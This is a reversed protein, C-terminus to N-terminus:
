YNFQVAYDSLIKCDFLRVDFDLLEQFTQWGQEKDDTQVLPMKNDKICTKINERLDIATKPVEKKSVKVKRQHSALYAEKSTV